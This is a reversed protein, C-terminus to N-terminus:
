LLMGKVALSTEATETKNPMPLDDEHSTDTLRAPAEPDLAVGGQEDDDELDLDEMAKAAADQKQPGDMCGRIEDPPPGGTQGNASWSWLEDGSWHVGRVAHGKVGQVEGLSSIDIECSGVIMPVSPKSLSAVAVVSGKKAKQPFPPGALGPTM